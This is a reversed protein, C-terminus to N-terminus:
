NCAPMPNTMAFHTWVDRLQDCPSIILPVPPPKRRLEEDWELWRATYAEVAQPTTRGLFRVYIEVFRRNSDYVYQKRYAEATPSFPMYGLTAFTLAGVIAERADDRSLDAKSIGLHRGWSLFPRRLSEYAMVNVRQVGYATTVEDAFRQAQKLRDAQDPALPISVCGTVMLSVAVFRWPRM